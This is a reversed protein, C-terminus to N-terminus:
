LGSETSAAQTVTSRFVWLKQLLFLIAALILILMGQIIQHCYGLRDVFITLALLNISYCLGYAICYRVLVSGNKSNHRFSWLKNFIFTQMMGMVYLLTMALKHEMGLKTIALYLLYGLTNSVVGVVGYRTLQGITVKM